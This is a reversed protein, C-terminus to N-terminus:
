GKALPTEWQDKPVVKPIEPDGEYAPTMIQVNNENFVDLINQHLRTYYFPMNSVDNCYVNIEYNVAFDGLSQKLVFPPPEKLLGETRDAALKLMADVQRWPTEYGIGVTTHLILGLDKARASYNIIQSNLLISNPIVIEENKLSRLRTVMLSQEEVIGIKDEVQIRDGKKFAKRYTMSYGAIINSIFSSSGLSFLVGIFVSVGKFASTESGPIYPYAVIVAFAIIFIRLIRFTPMAWEADFDKIVIGGQDVGTFLLKILRLLYRTVSFIVILFALSPLFEVFGKVMSKIPSLFLELTYSALNSTWPFLGLIYQLFIGIILLVVVIRITKFVIRFASWLQKAQIINFSKNQVTDIRAKIRNELGTRLKKHLWKFALLVVALLILAGVAYISKKILSKQSRNLRYSDIANKVKLHVLEALMSQSIKVSKADSEYVTMIFEEGAFIKFNSGDIVTKISDSSIKPNKAAQEIRKSITAARQEGTYTAIGNVNFLVVGDVVVPAINQSEGSLEPDFDDTNVQGTSICPLFFSILIIVVLVIRTLRLLISLLNTKICM